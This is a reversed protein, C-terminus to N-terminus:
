LISDGAQLVIPFMAIMTTGDVRISSAPFSVGDRMVQFGWMDYPGNERGNIAAYHVTSDGRAIADDIPEPILNPDSM